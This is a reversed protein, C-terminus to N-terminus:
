SNWSFGKTQIYEPEAIQEQEKDAFFEAGGEVDGVGTEVTQRVDGEFRRVKGQKEFGGPWGACPKGWTGGPGQVIHEHM